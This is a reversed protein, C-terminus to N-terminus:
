ARQFFLSITSNAEERRDTRGDARFLDAGPTRVKM